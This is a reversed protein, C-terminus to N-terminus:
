EKFINEVFEKIEKKVKATQNLVLLHNGGKIVKLKANKIREVMKTSDGLPFITDKNGHIILVPIDIKEFIGRAVFKNAFKLCYAYVRVNTNKADAVMRKLNWDAKSYDSYDIHLGRGKPPNFFSFVSALSIIFPRFFKARWTEGIRYDPSVFLAAKAKNKEQDLYALAVLTGLSHSILVINEARVEEILGALDQALSEVSCESHKEPMNSKGHGKLDFFLLNYKVSLDEYPKWASISGSLGHIFVLTIKGKKFKNCKYYIGAKSYRGEEM